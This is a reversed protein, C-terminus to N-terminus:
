DRNIGGTIRYKLPKQSFKEVFLKRFYSENEYGLSHIIEGVSMDTSSLLEAATNLRIEQVYQKFTKGTHKKVLNGTYVESYGLKGALEKVSATKLNEIM